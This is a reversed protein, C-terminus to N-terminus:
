RKSVKSSLSVFVPNIVWGLMNRKSNLASPPSSKAKYRNYALSSFMFGAATVVSVAVVTGGIVTAKLWSPWYDSSTTSTSVYQHEILTDMKQNLEASNSADLSQSLALIDTNCQEAQSLRLTLLGTNCQETLNQNLTQIDTDCLVTLDRNLAQLEHETLNRSLAQLEYETLSQSLVLLDRETLNLNQGM